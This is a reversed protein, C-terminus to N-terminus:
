LQSIKSKWENYRKKLKGWIIRKGEELNHYQINLEEVFSYDKLNLKNNIVTAGDIIDRILQKKVEYSINDSNLLEMAENMTNILEKIKNEEDKNITNISKIQIDRNKYKKNITYTSNIKSAISTFFFILSLTSLIKSKSPKKM